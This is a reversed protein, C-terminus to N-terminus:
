YEFRYRLCGRSVTLAVRRGCCPVASVKSFADHLDQEVVDTLLDGVYLSTQPPQATAAPKVEAAPAAPPAQTDAAAM